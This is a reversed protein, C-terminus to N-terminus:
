SFWNKIKETRRTSQERDTSESGGDEESPLCPTSFATTKRLLSVSKCIQAEIKRRFLIAEEVTFGQEEMKKITQAVISDIKDM